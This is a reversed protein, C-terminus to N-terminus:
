VIRMDEKRYAHYENKHADYLDQLKAIYVSHLNDIQEQSPNDVREVKIPQGIVTVLPHKFPIFGFAGNCLPAPCNITAVFFKQLLRSLHTDVIDYLENEGFGITPLLSTGTTLALKVFGKRKKLYLDM